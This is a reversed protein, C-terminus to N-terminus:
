ENFDGGQKRKPSFGIGLTRRLATNIRVWINADSIFGLYCELDSVNVTRIQEIMAMSSKSLGEMNGLLVHAMFDKKKLVSTIPIVVVTTSFQNIENTQIVLVPRKGKQISGNNNGLDCMYIQGRLPQSTSTLENM